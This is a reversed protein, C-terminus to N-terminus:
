LHLSILVQRVMGVLVWSPSQSQYVEKLEVVRTYSGIHSHVQGKQAHIPPQHRFQVLYSAPLPQSFGLSSRSVHSINFWQTWHVMENGSKYSHTPVSPIMMWIIRHVGYIFPQWMTVWIRKLSVKSNQFTWLFSPPSQLSTQIMSFWIM